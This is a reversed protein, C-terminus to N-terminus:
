TEILLNIVCKAVVVIIILCKLYWLNIRLVIKRFGIRSLEEKEGSIQRVLVGGHRVTLYRVARPKVPRINFVLM